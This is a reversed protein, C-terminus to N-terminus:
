PQHLAEENERGRVLGWYHTHWLIRWLLVITTAIEKQFRWFTMTLQLVNKHRKTHECCVYKCLNGCLWPTLNCDEPVVQVLHGLWFSTQGRVYPGRGHRKFRQCSLVTVYSAPFSADSIDIGWQESWPKVPRWLRAPHKSECGAIIHWLWPLLTLGVRTLIRLLATMWLLSTLLYDALLM